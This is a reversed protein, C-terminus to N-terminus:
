AYCCSPVKGFVVAQLVLSESLEMAFAIRSTVVIIPQWHLVVNLIRLLPTERTKNQM